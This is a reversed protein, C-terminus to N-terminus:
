LKKEGDFFFGKGLQNKVNGKPYRKHKYYYQGHTNTGTVNDRSSEACSSFSMGRKPFHGTHSLLGSPRVAM